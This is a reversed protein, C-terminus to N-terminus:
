GATEEAVKQLQSMDSMEILSSRRVKPNFNDTGMELNSEEDSKVPDGSDLDDPLQKILTDECDEEIADGSINEGLIISQKLSAPPLDSPGNTSPDELLLDWENRPAGTILTESFSDEDDASPPSLQLGANALSVM